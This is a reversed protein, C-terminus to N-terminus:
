FSVDISLLEDFTTANRIEADISQEEAVLPKVVNSIDFSLQYLEDLTWDNTAECNHANWSPTYDINMEKSRESLMIEQMLLSQKEKTITYLATVGGHCDSEVPNNYLYIEFNHELESIMKLKYNELTSNLAIIPTLVAEHPEVKVNVSTIVDMESNIDTELYQVGEGPLDYDGSAQYYIRGESDYIVLTRM